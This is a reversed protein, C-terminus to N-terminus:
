SMLTPRVWRPVASHKKRTSVSSRIPPVKKYDSYLNVNVNVSSETCCRIFFSM